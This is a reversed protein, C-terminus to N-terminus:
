QSRRGSDRIAYGPAGASLWIVVIYHTTNRQVVHTVRQTNAQVIGRDRTEAPVCLARV